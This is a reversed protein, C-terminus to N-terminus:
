GYLYNCDSCLSGFGEIYNRNRNFIPTDITIGEIDKNCLNCYETKDLINIKVKKLKLKGNISRNQILKSINKQEKLKHYNVGCDVCFFRSNKPDFLDFDKREFNGYPFRKFAYRIDWTVKHDLNKSCLYCNYQM